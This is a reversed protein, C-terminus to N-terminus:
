GCRQGSRSRGRSPVVERDRPKEKAKVGGSWLALLFPRHTRPSVDLALDAGHNYPKGRLPGQSTWVGASGECRDTVVYEGNRARSTGERRVVGPERKTRREFFFSSVIESSIVLSITIESGM